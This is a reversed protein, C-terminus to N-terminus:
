SSKKWLFVLGGGRAGTICRPKGASGCCAVHEYAAVAGGAAILLAVAIPEEAVLQASPLQMRCKSM